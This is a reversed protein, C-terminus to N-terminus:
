QRNVETFTKIEERGNTTETEESVSGKELSTGVAM